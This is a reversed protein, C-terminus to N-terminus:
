SEEEVSRNHHLDIVVTVVEAEPWSRNMTRAAAIRNEEPPAATLAQPNVPQCTAQKRDAIAARAIATRM